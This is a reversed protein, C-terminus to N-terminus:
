DSFRMFICGIMEPKSPRRRSYLETFRHKKLPVLPDTRYIRFEHCHQFPQTFEGPPSKTAFVDLEVHFVLELKRAFANVIGGEKNAVVHGMEDSPESRRARFFNCKRCHLQCHVIGILM